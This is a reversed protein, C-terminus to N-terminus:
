ATTVTVRDRFNPLYLALEMIIGDEQLSPLALGRKESGAAPGRGGFGRRVTAQSGDREHVL